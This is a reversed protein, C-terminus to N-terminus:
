GRKLEHKSTERAALVAFFTVVAAAMLYFGPALDSGTWGILLTAVMAASGGFVANAANFTLAFGSLRVKTSFQESLFSPLIGDNLALAMGMCLQIVIVLFLGAGDLLMFAPVITLVFAISATLMIRKRGVRDSLWGTFLVSFIYVFLTVSTAIFSDTHNQGLEESLYTPLYSLIVYFGIANLLSAALAIGLAKPEKWVMALPSKQAEDTGVAVEGSEQACQFENTEDMHRRIWLM